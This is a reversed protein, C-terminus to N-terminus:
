IRIQGEYVTTAPGTMFVPNDEGQWELQLLGGKMHACAKSGLLGRTNGAVLAACAGSGCALTEGVGREFVRLEYTNQDLVQMFGVNVGEPFDEHAGIQQGLEVVPANVCDDVVIVAHPNGLAVASFEVARGDVELTYTIARQPARFPVRQPDLEPAGMNVRVQQDKMIQLELTGANTEVRIPNRGTLRKDTVYKAFCRAGNGCQAVENGDSNFIEYRFDVDPDHPHDVVLLQDFGIGFRRNGLRKVLSKNLRVHQSLRDVVVFDNGLGHMKTFRLLM